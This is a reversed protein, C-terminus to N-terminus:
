LPFPFVIHHENVTKMVKKKKDNPGVFPCEDNDWAVADELNGSVKGENWLYKGYM